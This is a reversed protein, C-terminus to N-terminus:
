NTLGRLRQPKVIIISIDSASNYSVACGINYSVACGIIDYKEV